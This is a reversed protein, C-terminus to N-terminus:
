ASSQRFWNMLLHCHKPPHKWPAKTEPEPHSHIVLSWHVCWSCRNYSSGESCTVGPNVTCFSKQSVTRVGLWLLAKLFHTHKRVQSLSSCSQLSERWRELVTKSVRGSDSGDSLCVPLLSVSLCASLYVSLCNGTLKHQWTVNRWSLNFVFQTVTPSIILWTNNVTLRSVETNRDRLCSTTGDSAQDEDKKKNKKTKQDKKSDEDGTHTPPPTSM